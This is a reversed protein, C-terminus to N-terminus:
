VDLSIAGNIANVRLMQAKGGATVKIYYTPLYFGDLQKFSLVHNAVRKADSPRQGALKGVVKVVKELSNFKGPSVKAKRVWAPTAKKKGAGKLIRKIADAPGGTKGDVTMADTRTLQFLEVIDLHISKGPISKGKKPTMIEKGVYAGSVQDNVGLEQKRLRLFKLDLVADYICYFDYKLVPKSVKLASPSVGLIDAGDKTAARKAKEPKVKEAFYYLKKKKSDIKMKAHGGTTKFMSASLRPKATKKKKVM